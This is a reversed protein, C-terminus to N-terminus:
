LVRINLRHLTVAVLCVTSIYATLVVLATYDDAYITQMSFNVLGTLVNAVLFVTLGNQNVAVLIEPLMQQSITWDQYEKDTLKVDKGKKTTAFLTWEKETPGTIRDIGYFFLLILCNLACVWLVYPLNALRRSIDMGLGSWVFAFVAWYVLMNTSLQAYRYELLQLKSPQSMILTGIDMAFLFIALYGFVSCIGEKNMSSLTTREAKIVWEELGYRSLAFQYGLVVVWAALKYRGRFVRKCLAVLISVAALTFFFNWHVGYESTHEQYDTSKVAVLRGVGLVILPLTNKVTQLVVKVLDQDKDVTGVAVIGASFVVCGVGLDMLSAGFTEVKAFRRPFVNFDV